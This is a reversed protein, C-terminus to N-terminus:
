VPRQRNQGRCWWGGVRLNKRVGILRHKECRRCVFHHSGYFSLTVEETQRFAGRDIEVSYRQVDGIGVAVAVIYGEHNVIRLEDVVIHVTYGNEGIAIVVVGGDAGVKGFYGVVGIIFIAVADDQDDVVVVIGVIGIVVAVVVIGLDIWTGRFNTVVEVVVAVAVDVFPQRYIGIEFIGVIVAIAVWLLKVGSTLCARVGTKYGVGAIAVIGIGGDM